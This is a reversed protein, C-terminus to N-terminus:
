GRNVAIWVPGVISNRWDPQGHPVWLNRSQVKIELRSDRSPVKSNNM